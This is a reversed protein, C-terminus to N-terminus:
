SPTFPSPPTLALSGSKQKLSKMEEALMVMASVCVGYLVQAEEPTLNEEPHLIPNRYHERIHDLFGIIKPQASKKRFEKIYAGWNRFKVKPEIGTLLKYYGRIVAETARLLHFGAATSSDFLLCRGAEDFDKAAEPIENVISAPLESHASSMLMSTKHTGKPSIWYTDSNALEASLVTEFKVAATRVGHAAWGIPEEPSPLSQLKKTVDQWSKPVVSEIARYLETAALFCVELSRQQFLEELKERANFWDLWIDSYKVDNTATTLPHVHSALEYLHFENLRLM